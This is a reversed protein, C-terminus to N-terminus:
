VHARGIQLQGLDRFVMERLSTDDLRALDPQRSGGVFTTLLVRDEGAREAFLSSSFICGLINRRECEPVLMGFGDLAHGIAGRRWGSYVVTVPPYQITLLAKAAAPAITQVLPAAAYAPVALILGRAHLTRMGDAGRTEVVYGAASRTLGTVASNLEIRRLRSAISAVLKEMGDRFSFMAAVHKSKQANRARRRAGLIQGRILSGFEQELAYLRPFAARLSLQEPRGAYVGGVFPNIAYDLFERGLRRQVFSAVTEEEDSRWRGVFPELCLRAKALASFLPTRLFAAPSMPLPLPQGDRVVFRKQAAPNADLRENAIGLAAFLEGLAPSTDLASNPGAELLYGNRRTTSICGGAKDGAELLLVDVGRQQLGWACCLGSIGGGVVIVDADFGTQM